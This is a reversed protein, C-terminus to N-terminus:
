VELERTEEPAVQALAAVAQQWALTARLAEPSLGGRGHLRMLRAESAASRYDVLHDLVAEAGERHNCVLLLDCGAALAADARAPYEGLRAAGVMSLDYSIIV